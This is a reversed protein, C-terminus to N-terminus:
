LSGPQSVANGEEARGQGARGEGRAALLRRLTCIRSGERQMSTQSGGQPTELRGPANRDSEELDEVM